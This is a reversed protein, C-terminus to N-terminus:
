KFLIKFPYNLMKGINAKIGVTRHTPVGGIIMQTQQTSIRLPQSELLVRRGGEFRLVFVCGLLGWVNQRVVQSGTVNAAKDGDDTWWDWKEDLTLKIFIHAEWYCSSGRTQLTVLCFAIVFLCESPRTGAPLLQESTHM